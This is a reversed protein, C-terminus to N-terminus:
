CALLMAHKNPGTASPSVVWVISDATTMAHPHAEPANGVVVAATDEIGYAKTASEHNNPLPLTIELFAEQRERQSAYYPVAIMNHVIDLGRELTMEGTEESTNAFYEFWIGAAKGRGYLVQTAARARTKELFHDIKRARIERVAEVPNEVYPYIFNSGLVADRIERQSPDQALDLISVHAQAEPGKYYGTVVSHGPEPSADSASLILVRPKTDPREPNQALALARRDLEINESLAGGGVAVVTHM